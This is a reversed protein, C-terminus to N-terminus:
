RSRMSHMSRKVHSEFEFIDFALIPGIPPNHEYLPFGSCALIIRRRKRRVAALLHHKTPVQKGQPTCTISHMSLDLMSNPKTSAMSHM